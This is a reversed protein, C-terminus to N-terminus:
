LNITVDAKERLKKMLEQTTEAEKRNIIEQELNDRIEDFAPVETTEGGAEERQAVLQDYFEQLEEETVEFGGSEAAVFEDLKVQMEVKSMVEAEEMGQLELADLFEEKTELGNQAALEEIKENVKEESVAVNSKNVEQVLLEQGIVSEAIKNEYEDHDFHLGSALYQRATQQFQSLYLPEFDEKLIEVGNVEAIVDPINKLNPSGMEPQRSTYNEEENVTEENATEQTETQDDNNETNETDDSCAVTFTIMGALSLSVLWKKNM